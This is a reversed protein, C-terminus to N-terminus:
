GRDVWVLFGVMFLCSFFSNAVKTRCHVSSCSSSTISLSRWAPRISWTTTALCSFIALSDSQVVGAFGSRSIPNSNRMSCPSTSGLLPAFPRTTAALMSLLACLLIDNFGGLLGGTHPCTGFQHHVQGFDDAVMRRMSRRQYQKVHDLVVRARDNLCKSGTSSRVSVLFILVHTRSCASPNKRAQNVFAICPPPKDLKVSLDHLM